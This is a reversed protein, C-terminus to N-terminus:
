TGVNAPLIKNKPTTGGGCVPCAATFTQGSWWFGEGYKSSKGSYPAAPTRLPGVTAIFVAHFGFGGCNPCDEPGLPKNESLWAKKVGPTKIAIKIESAIQLTVM